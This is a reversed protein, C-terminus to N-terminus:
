NGKNLHDCTTCLVYMYDYVCMVCVSVYQICKSVLCGRQVKHLPNRRQSQLENKNLIYAHTEITHNSIKNRYTWTKEIKVRKPSPEQVDDYIVHATHSETKIDCKEEYIVVLMSDERTRYAFVHTTGHPM